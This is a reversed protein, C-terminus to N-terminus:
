PPDEAPAPVDGAAYRAWVIWTVVTILILGGPWLVEHATNFHRSRYGGVYFLSALRVFNALQIVLLGFGLGQLKRRLSTPFAIIAASLMTCLQIADCEPAIEVLFADSWIQSGVVEADEGTLLLLWSAVNALGQLYIELGRSGLILGYYAAESGLALIAFVATFRIWPDKWWHRIRGSRETDQEPAM